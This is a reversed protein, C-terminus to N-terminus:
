KFADSVPRVARARMSRATADYTFVAMLGERNDIVYLGEGSLVRATVVQYDRSNVSDDAVAAPTHFFTLMMLVVASITLACIAILKRNMIKRASHLQPIEDGNSGM